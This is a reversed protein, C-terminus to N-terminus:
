GRIWKKKIVHEKGKSDQRITSSLGRLNIKNLMNRSIESKNAAVSRPFYPGVQTYEIKNNLGCPIERNRIGHKTWLYNNYVDVGEDSPNGGGKVHMGHLNAAIAAAKALDVDEYFYTPVFLHNNIEYKIANERFYKPSADEEYVYTPTFLYERFDNYM